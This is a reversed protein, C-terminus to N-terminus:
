FLSSSVENWRSHLMMSMATDKDNKICCWDLCNFSEYDKTIEAGNELLFKVVDTKGTSAAAILATRGYKNKWDIINQDVAMLLEVVDLHGNHAAIHLASYMSGDSFSLSTTNRM